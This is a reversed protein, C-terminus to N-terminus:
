YGYMIFVINKYGDFNLGFVILRDYIEDKGVLNIVIVYVIEVVCVRIVICFIM